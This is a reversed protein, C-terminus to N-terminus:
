LTCIHVSYYATYMTNSTCANAKGTYADIVYCVVQWLHTSCKIKSKSKAGFMLSDVITTLLCSKDYITFTYSAITENINVVVTCIQWMLSKTCQVM